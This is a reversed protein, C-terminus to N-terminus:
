RGNAAVNYQAQNAAERQAQIHPVWQKQKTIGVSKEQELLLDVSKQASAVGCEMFGIGGNLPLFTGAIGVGNQALGPLEAKFAELSKAQGPKPSCYCPKNGPNNYDFTGPAFSLDFMKEASSGHAKAYANLREYIFEKPKQQGLTDAEALLTLLHPASSWCQFGMSSFFTSDKPAMGPKFTVTLKISKTYQTDNLLQKGNASLGLAELGEVKALGYSPLALITKDTTTNLEANAFNLALKGDTQKTVGKLEAGTHFTVGAAKLKEHMASILSHTGDAVRFKCDSALLSDYEHSTEAVFSAASIDGIPRGMEAAYTGGAIALTTKAENGRLTVTDVLWRWLSRNPLKVHQGLEALYEQLSIQNIHQARLGNPDRAMEERDKMVQTAYPKYSEYFREGSMISGDPRQFEEHDAGKNEILPVGLSKALGIMHEQDSDIFEAGQNIPTNGIMGTQIKGGLKQDAEYIHINTEGRQVAEWAASLGSIGGGVITLKKQASGTTM